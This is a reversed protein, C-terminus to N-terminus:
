FRGYEEVGDQDLRSHTEELINYREKVATCMEKWEKICMTDGRRHIPKEETGRRRRSM